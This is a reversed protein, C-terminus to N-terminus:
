LLGGTSSPHNPHRQPVFVELDQGPNCRGTGTNHQQEARRQRAGRGPMRGAGFGRRCVRGPDRLPEGGNTLRDGVGGFFIAAHPSGTVAVEAEGPAIPPPVPARTRASPTPGIPVIPAIPMRPAVPPTIPLRAAQLRAALQKTGLISRSTTWAVGNQLM